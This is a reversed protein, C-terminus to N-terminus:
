EPIEKATIEVVFEYNYKLNGFPKRIKMDGVVVLGWGKEHLYNKLAECFSAYNDKPQQEVRTNRWNSCLYSATHTEHSFECLGFPYAGKKWSRCNECCPKLKETM